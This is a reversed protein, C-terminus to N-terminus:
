KFINTIKMPITNINSNYQFQQKPQTKRRRPIPGLLGTNNLQPQHAQGYWSTSLGLKLQHQTLNLNLNPQALLQVLYGTMNIIHALNVTEQSDGFPTPTGIKMTTLPLTTMGLTGRRRTPLKTYSTCKLTCPCLLTRISVSSWCWGSNTWRSCSYQGPITRM